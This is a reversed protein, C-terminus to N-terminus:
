AAQSMQQDLETDFLRQVKIDHNASGSVQKMEKIIEANKIM